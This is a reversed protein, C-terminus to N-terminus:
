RYRELATATLMGFFGANKLVRMEALTEGLDRGTAALPEKLKIELDLIFALTDPAADFAQALTAQVLCGSDPVAYLAQQTFNHFKWNLTPPPQPPATFYTALKFDAQPFELRNIFRVVVTHLEPGQMAEVYHAWSELAHAEFTEWDPYPNLWSVAFGDRRVHYVTPQTKSRFFFGDADLFRVQQRPEEGAKAIVKMEMPRMEQIETHEPWIAAFDKKAKEPSWHAAANAQFFILAEVIPARSLHPFIPM